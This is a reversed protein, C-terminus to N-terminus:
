SVKVANEIVTLWLQALVWEEDMRTLDVSIFWTVLNVSVIEVSFSKLFVHRQYLSPYAEM